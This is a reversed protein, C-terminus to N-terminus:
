QTINQIMNKPKLTTGVKEPFLMYLKWSSDANAVSGNPSCSEVRKLTECNMNRSEISFYKFGVCEDVRLCWQSCENVSGVRQNTLTNTVFCDGIITVILIASTVGLLSPPCTREGRKSPISPHINSKKMYTM